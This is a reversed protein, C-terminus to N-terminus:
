GCVDREALRPSHTGENSGENSDPPDPHLSIQVRRVAQLRRQHKHSQLLEVWLREIQLHEIPLVLNISSM